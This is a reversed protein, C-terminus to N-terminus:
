DLVNSVTHLFIGSIFLVPYLRQHITNASTTKYYDKSEYKKMAQKTLQHLNDDIVQKSIQQGYEEFFGTMEGVLQNLSEQIKQNMTAIAAKLTSLDVQEQETTPFNFSDLLPYKGFTEIVQTLLTQMSTFTDTDTPNDTLIKGLETMQPVTVQSFNVMDNILTKINNEPSDQHSEKLLASKMSSLSELSLSSLLEQQVQEDIQM